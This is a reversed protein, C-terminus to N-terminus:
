AAVENKSKSASRKEARQMAKLASSLGALLSQRDSAQVRM